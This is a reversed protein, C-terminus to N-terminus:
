VHCVRAKKKDQKLAKNEEILADREGEWEEKVARSAERERECEEKRSRPIQAQTIHINKLMAIKNKL